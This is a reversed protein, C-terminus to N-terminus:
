NCSTMDQGTSGDIKGDGLFNHSKICPMLEYLTNGLTVSEGVLNNDLIPRSSKKILCVTEGFNGKPHFGVLPLRAQRSLILTFFSFCASPTSNVACYNNVFCYTMDRKFQWPTEYRM